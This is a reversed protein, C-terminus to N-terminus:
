NISNSPRQEAQEAPADGRTFCLTKGYLEGKLVLVRWGVQRYRRLLERQACLRLDDGLTYTAYSDPVDEHYNDQLHQDIKAELETLLKEEDDNLPMDGLALLNTPSIAM